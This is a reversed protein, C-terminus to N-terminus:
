LASVRFPYAQRGGEAKPCHPEIVAILGKWPMVQNMEILLLEKHTQKRQSAYEADIFTMQKM